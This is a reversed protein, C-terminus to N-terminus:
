VPENFFEAQLLPEFLPSLGEEPYSDAAFWRAGAASEGDGTLKVKSKLRTRQKLNFIVGVWHLDWPEEGPDSWVSKGDLVTHLSLDSGQIRLACEEFLERVLAEVPPEGFDIGGGPLGWKGAHPGLAQQVLLLENGERLLGYAGVRTKQRM